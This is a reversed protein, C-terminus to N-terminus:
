SVALLGVSLTLFLLKLYLNIDRAILVFAVDGITVVSAVILVGVSILGHIYCTVILFCGFCGPIAALSAAILYSSIGGMKIIRMFTVRSSSHFYEVLLMMCIVFGSLSLAHDFINLAMYQDFQMRPLIRGM